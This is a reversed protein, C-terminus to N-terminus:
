AHGKVEGADLARMLLFDEISLGLAAAEAEVIALEEDNFPVLIERTRNEPRSRRVFCPKSHTKSM